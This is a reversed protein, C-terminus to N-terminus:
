KRSSILTKIKTSIEFTKGELVLWDLLQRQIAQTIPEDSGAQLADLEVLIQVRESEKLDRFFSLLLSRYEDGEPPTSLKEDADNAAVMEIVLENSLSNIEVPDASTSNISEPDSGRAKRFNPSALDFKPRSGGLRIEDAEFCTDKPNWARPHITVTLADLEMNWSFEIINYTYTYTKNSKYPVTAGAALLMLDAEESLKEVNVRPNHEHGSIIVRSRSRLYQSASESDKFWHLPHHILVINEEGNNRPIIFQRAGMMLEPDTDNEAGTCLLASNLRVFRIARGPALEIHLNTSYKGEIDLTCDYGESFRGYDEFRSFLTARDTANAMVLEYESPGGSKIEKLLYNAAKSARDRDLDHNGPVMQVKFTECGVAQALLDLWKGAEEYQEHKGAQAIDGTVLIGHAIGGPMGRVVEAADAILQQKVDNHFHVSDDREQGFHIDSVHVFIAPM